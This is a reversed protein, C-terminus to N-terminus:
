DFSPFFSNRIDFMSHGIGFTAGKRGEDNMIGQEFNSIGRVGESGLTIVAWL